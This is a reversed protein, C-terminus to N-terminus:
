NAIQQPVNAAQGPLFFDTYFGNAGQRAMAAMEPVDNSVFVLYIRGMARIRNAMAASFRRREFAVGAVEPNKEVFDAIEELSLQSRYTTFIVRRYLGTRKIVALDSPAYIQPILRDRVSAPFKAVEKALRMHVKWFSESDHALDQEQAADRSNKVDLIVRADPYAALLDLLAKFELPRYANYYRLGLFEDANVDTIRKDVGFEANMSGLTHFLVLRGDRAEMVDAEFVRFGKEYSYRFAEMSNTYTHTDIGGLAHAILLSEGRLLAADDDVGASADDQALMLWSSGAAIAMIALWKTRTKM